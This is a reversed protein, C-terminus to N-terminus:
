MYLSGIMLFVPLLTTWLQLIWSSSAASTIEAGTLNSPNSGGWMTINRFYTHTASPTAWSDDSGGFFTSFYMGGVNVSSSSRFQLDTQSIVEVDNYYLKLNGNAVDEPDNLQVLLTVQNWEGTVFSFAGRSISTGFDDNCTISRESCLNNPTPIYAYVEAAGEQRWMLRVSFCDSGTPQNGGSCGTANPGGRLGPLKGGKVWDFDKDFAIDYSLMLSQFVEGNSANWLNSFQTGGTGHSFSGEPYTVELVPSSSNTTFPDGVLAINNSGDQLHGRSLSWESVIFATTEDSTQTATPFPFTTSTTLSYQSALEQPSFQVAAAPYVLFTFSFFALLFLSITTYM